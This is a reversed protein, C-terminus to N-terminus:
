RRNAEVTLKLMYARDNDFTANWSKDQSKLDFVWFAALGVDAQEMDSLLKEFKSRTATEDDRSALGFEGIFVPRKIDRALERVVCLYDAHDGAWAAVGSPM